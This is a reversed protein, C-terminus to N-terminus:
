VVLKKIGMVYGIHMGHHHLVFNIATEISDIEFGTSTTFSKFSTFHHNAYDERLQQVGKIAYSKFQNYEDTSVITEPKTGVKYAHVFAEDLRLEIGSRGYCLMQVSSVIHAFNWVMNNRFGEPVQNIQEITFADLMNALNQQAKEILAFQSEM